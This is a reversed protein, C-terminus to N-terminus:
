KSFCNFIHKFDIYEMQWDGITLKPLNKNM